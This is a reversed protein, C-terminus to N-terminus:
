RKRKKPYDIGKVDFRNPQASWRIGAKDIPAKIKKDIARAAPSREADQEKLLEMMEKSMTMPKYGGSLRIVRGDKLTRFHGM